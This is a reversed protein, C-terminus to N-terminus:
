IPNSPPRKQLVVFAQPGRQHDRFNLYNLVTLAQSIWRQWWSYQGNAFGRISAEPRINTAWKLLSYFPYGWHQFQVVEFGSRAALTMLFSETPHVTHGFFRETPHVKGLPFTLLLHAGPSAAAAFAQFAKEPYELHELVESLIIIDHKGLTAGADLDAITFTAWPMIKQNKSIVEPSLDVGNWCRIEPHLSGLIQLLTGPGCGVDLISLDSPSRGGTKLLLDFTRVIWRRRHVAGPHYRIFDGSRRWLADYESASLPVPASLRSEKEDIKNQEAM